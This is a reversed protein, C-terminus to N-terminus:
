QNGVAEDIKTRNQQIAKDGPKNPVYSSHKELFTATPSENWDLILETKTNLKWNTL